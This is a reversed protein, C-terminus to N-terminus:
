ITNNETQVEVGVVAVLSRKFHLDVRTLARAHEIYILVFPGNNFPNPTESSMENSIHKFLCIWDVPNFVNLQKGM